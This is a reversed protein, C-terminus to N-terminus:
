GGGSLKRLDENMLGISAELSSRMQKVKDEQVGHKNQFKGLCIIEQVTYGYKEAMDLYPKMDGRRVFTNSVVVNDGAQMANETYAQCHSHATRAVEPSWKYEGRGILIVYKDAEQHRYGKEEFMKALTSKGSGPAGRILVLSKLMKM